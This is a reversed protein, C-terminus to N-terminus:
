PKAKEETKHPINAFLLSSFTIALAIAMIGFVADTGTRAALQYEGEVLYRVTRYLGVGPIIPIISTILFITTAKKMVRAAIECAVAMFLTACFFGVTTQKLLLFVGYGLMAFCSSVPITKKPQHFLISFFLSAFFSAVLSILISM